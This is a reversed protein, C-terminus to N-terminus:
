RDARLRTIRLLYPNGQVMKSSDLESHGTTISQRRTSPCHRISALPFPDLWLLHGVGRLSL